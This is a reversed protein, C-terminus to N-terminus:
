KTAELVEEVDKQGFFSKVLRKKESYVYMAPYKTPQFKPIFEHGSDLLIMVNKKGKLAAGYKDMFRAIEAKADLTVLYFNLNKFENYHKGISDMEAQCHSCSTDFLILVSKKGSEIDDKTFATSDKLTYFTFDPMDSGQHQQSKARHCGVVTLLSLVIFLNKMQNRTRFLVLM